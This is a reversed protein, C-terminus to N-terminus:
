PLSGGETEDWCDPCLICNLWREYNRQVGQMYHGDFWEHCRDCEVDGELTRLAESSKQIRLRLTM